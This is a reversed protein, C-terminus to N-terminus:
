SRVPLLLGERLCAHTGTEALRRDRSRVQVAGTATDTQHTLVAVLAHHLAARIGEFELVSRGAPDLDKGLEWGVIVADATGDVDLAVSGDERLTM